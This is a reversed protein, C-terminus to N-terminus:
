EKVVFTLGFQRAMILNEAYGNSRNDRNDWFVLVPSYSILDCVEQDHQSYMLSILQTHHTYCVVHEQSFEDGGNATLWRAIQGARSGSKSGLNKIVHFYPKDLALPHTHSPASPITQESFVPIPMSLRSMTIAQQLQARKDQWEHAECVAPVTRGDLKTYNDPWEGTESGCGCVRFRRNGKSGLGPRELYYFEEYAWVVDRVVQTQIMDIHKTDM